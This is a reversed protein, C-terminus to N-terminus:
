HRENVTSLTRSNDKYLYVLKMEKPNLLALDLVTSMFLIQLELLENDTGTPVNSNVFNSDVLREWEDLKIGRVMKTSWEIYYEDNELTPYDKPDKRSQM